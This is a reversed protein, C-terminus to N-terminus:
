TGNKHRRQDHPVKVEAPVITENGAEDTIIYTITYVRAERITANRKARLFIDRDSIEIDGESDQNCTIDVLEVTFEESCNDTIEFAPTVKVMKNNPPWIIAPKVTVTVQPPTQDTVKIVVDNPESDVTGDNVILTFTHEDLGLDVDLEVGEGFFTGNYFWSYTLPDGDPDYSGSGDLVVSAGCQGDAILDLDKGADAVPPRNLIPTKASKAVSAWTENRNRSTDRVKVTYTYVTGPTLGTDKYTRGEQWGSDHGGGDICQFYYQVPSEDCPKEAKMIITTESTAKPVDQWTTRYPYPTGFDNKHWNKAIDKDVWTCTDGTTALTSNILKRFPAVQPGSGGGHIIAFQAHPYDCYREILFAGGSDGSVGPRTGNKKHHYFGAGGRASNGTRNRHYELGKGRGVQTFHITGDSPMIKSGVLAIKPTNEVTVPRTLRCLAADENPLKVVKDVRRELSGNRFIVRVTTTKPFQAKPQVVHWATLIWRDSILSGTGILMGNKERYIKIGCVAFFNPQAKTKWVALLEPAFFLILVAIFALKKRIM